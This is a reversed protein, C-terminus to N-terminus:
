MRFKTQTYSDNLEGLQEKIADAVERISSAREYASTIWAEIEVPNNSRYYGVSNALLFKVSGSARLAHIIKRIRPGSTKHPCRATLTKNSIALEKGIRHGLETAVWPVINDREFDTLEHTYEEFNTIM